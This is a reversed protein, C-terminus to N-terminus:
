EALEMGMGDMLRHLDKLYIRKTAMFKLIIFKGVGDGFDFLNAIM